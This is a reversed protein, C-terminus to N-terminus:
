ENPHTSIQGQVPRVGPMVFTGGELVMDIADMLDRAVLHKLVVGNAGASLLADVVAPDNHVTLMIVKSAPSSRRFQRILGAFEEHAFSLDVVIVTPRLRETDKMLSGTDAVTFTTDFATELLARVGEVYRTHTDALLACSKQLSKVQRHDHNSILTLIFILLAITATFAM